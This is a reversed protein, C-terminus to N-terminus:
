IIKFKQESLMLKNVYAELFSDMSKRDGVDRSLLIENILEYRTDTNTNGADDPEITRSTTLNSSDKTEETIYYQLRDGYFLVFNKSYVGDIINKMAENYFGSDGGNERSITYHLVVKKDPSTRYEVFTRDDYLRIEPVFDRFKRFFELVVGNHLYACVIARIGGRFDAPVTGKQSFYYLLAIKAVEAFDEKESLLRYIREFVYDGTIRNKVFYDYASYTLWAKALDDNGDKGAYDKFVEDAEGVYSQAFLMQSIMRRELRGVPVGFSVAAKWVDRLDQICGYFNESLFKLLTEDYKGSKFARFALVRLFKDETDHGDNILRSVMRVIVKPDVRNSGYRKIVAYAREHMGRIVMYRIIEHRVNAGVRSIDTRILLEDLEDSLNSNYYYLMLSKRMEDKENNNIEDSMVLHRVADVNKSDVEIFKRGYRCIYVASGTDDLNQRIVSDLRLPQLLRKDEVDQRDVTRNGYEDEFILVYDNGYISVYAEGDRLVYRHEKIFGSEVVSVTRMYKDAVSIKHIFVIRSLANLFDGRREMDSISLVYEYIISLNDSIRGLEAMRLAFECIQPCYVALYEGATAAHKILNVYLVILRDDTLDAGMRFYLLVSRDILEDADEPFSYMYYEYLRTIKIQSSVALRFWKFHKELAVHNQILHGCIAGLIEELKFKKFYAGMLRIYVPSYEKLRSGHFIMRQILNEAFIGRKVGWWLVNTEFESMRNLLDPNEQILLYAEVYILPSNGGRRFLKTMMDIKKEPLAEYSEDMYLLLWLLRSSLSNNVYMDRVIQANKKVKVEDHALMAELYFVYAEFEEGESRMDFQDKVHRLVSQAESERSAIILVHVMYLRAAVDNPNHSTIKEIYVLSAKCWVDSKIDHLRFRIYENMLAYEIKQREVAASINKSLKHAVVTIEDSFHTGSIVVKGYNNGDHMADYVMLLKVVCTDGDFNENTIYQKDSVIFDAESTVRLSADGWGDRIIRVECCKDAGDTSVEIENRDLTYSVPTKKHVAILFEEVNERSYERVRFPKYLGLYREDVGTFIEEFYPNYFVEVAEDFNARALNTFHFLNKIMGESSQAFRRQINFVFPLHYEGADSIVNIEGKVIDGPELGTTDFAYHVEVSSASFSRRDCVLRPNSSYIAGTCKRMSPSVIHFVGATKEGITADHEIKREPFTLTGVDYEFKGNLIDAIHSDM